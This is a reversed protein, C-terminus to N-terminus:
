TASRASPRAACASSGSGAGTPTWIATPPLRPFCSWRVFLLTLVKLPLRLYDPMRAHQDLVFRATRNWAPGPAGARAAFHGRIFAYCLASVAGEFARQM